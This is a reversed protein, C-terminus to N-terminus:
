IIPREKLLDRLYNKEEPTLSEVFKRLRERNWQQVAREIQEKARQSCEECLGSVQFSALRMSFAGCNYCYGIRAEHM